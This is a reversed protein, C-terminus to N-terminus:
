IWEWSLARFSFTICISYFDGIDPERMDYWWVYVLAFDNPFHFTGCNPLSTSSWCIPSAHAKDKQKIRNRETRAAIQLSNQLNSVATWCETPRCNHLTVPQLSHCNQLTVPQLSHCNQLTVPQLSHCNHLTVPQLSHCNQLTVPIFPSLYSPHCTQLTVIVFPSQNCLAVPIFLSLNHLTVLKGPFLNAIHM